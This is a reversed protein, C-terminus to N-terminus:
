LVVVGDAGGVGAVGVAGGDVAGELVAPDILEAVLAGTAIEHLRLRHGVASAVLEGGPSLAVALAPTNEALVENAWLGLSMGLVVAGVLTAASRFVKTMPM